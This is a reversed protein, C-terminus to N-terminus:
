HRILLLHRRCLQRATYALTVATGFGILAYLLLLRLFFTGLESTM